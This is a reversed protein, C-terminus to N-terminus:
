FPQQWESLNSSALLVSLSQLTSCYFIRGPAAITIHFKRKANCIHEICNKKEERSAQLKIQSRMRLSFSCSDETSFFSQFQFTKTNTEYCCTFFDFRELLSFIEYFLSISQRTIRWLCVFFEGGARIDFFSFKKRTWLCFLPFNFIAYFFWGRSGFFFTKGKAMLVQFATRLKKRKEMESCREYHPIIQSGHSLLSSEMDIFIFTSLQAEGSWWNSTIVDYKCSVELPRLSKM